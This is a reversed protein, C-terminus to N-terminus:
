YKRILQNEKIIGDIISEINSSIRGKIYDEYSGEKHLLLFLEFNPNSVAAIDRKEIDEILKDHGEVKEEFIDGDFVIIMRDHEVDKIFESSKVLNSKGSANACYIVANKLLNTQKIKIRHSKDMVM